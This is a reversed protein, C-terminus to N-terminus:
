VRIRVRARLPQYIDIEQEHELEVAVAFQQHTIEEGAWRREAFVALYYEDGYHDVNRKMTFCSKQLTSTGRLDRSPVLACKATGPLKEFPDEGADRHRFYEFIEDPSIGRLLHYNLRVGLYELRTYRVPPSFAMSVRIHRVGRTTRFNEPLPVRFLAFQDIAIEQRDAVFVARREESNVARFTNPVGYGLCLRPADPGVRQLCEAAEAPYEASLGLLVRIMNASAQPYARLLSAAKFAVRPAAMSTGTSSTLLSPRYDSRLTLMGASAYHHGTAIRRAFGDYLCTGGYDVLDPKISDNVGPGCRTIPTPTNTTAIPRLEAGPDPNVPLGNAHALSGVTLAIVATAPDVIRNAASTLYSPYAQTIRESPEGWPARPGDASNGASVVIVIDLESALADLTAAWTSVRGGDYPIRHKDGLSINIIRCGREHLARIATRMQEPITKEDDFQGDDNVVKVSIIRVPSQFSNRDVCERVDGFCAIGAVKTGHGWIDATGLTDPAGLSEVLSPVLLPHDVSGSDIVGILPADAAPPAIEPANQMTVVPPDRDGLDPIPRVDIRSVAPLALLDRLLAGTVRARLVILGATGVYRSDVEAGAGEIHNVIREVRVMRDLQTPADWLELDVMYSARAEIDDPTSVGEGRLRPGIRDTPTLSGIDEISAFLANYAPNRQGPPPGQQYQTLRERFQQMETNDAFLVIINGPEQSLVKFGATRWADEQIPAALTVKLILEPDIGEIRPLATQQAAAADM